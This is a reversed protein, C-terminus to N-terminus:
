PLVNTQYATSRDARANSLASRSANKKEPLLRCVLHLRSQLESTHEESRRQQKSQDLRNTSNASKPKYRWSQSAVGTRTARYAPKKCSTLRSVRFLIRKSAKHRPGRLIQMM